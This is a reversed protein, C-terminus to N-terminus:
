ISYLFIGFILFIKFFVCGNKGNWMSSDAFNILEPKKCFAFNTLSNCSVLIVLWNWLFVKATKTQCIIQDWLQSQRKQSDKEGNHM